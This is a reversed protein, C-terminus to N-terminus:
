EHENELYWDSLIAGVLNTVARPTITAGTFADFDGGDKRVSFRTDKLSRGDFALIWPSLRAEIKDGLGPTEKHALTRVGLLTQNDAEIGILLTIDGSYGKGTTAKIFHAGNDLAYVVIPHDNLTRLEAHELLEAEINAEPAIARFQALLANTRQTEIQPQVLFFIASVALLCAASFAGLILSPKTITSPIFRNM